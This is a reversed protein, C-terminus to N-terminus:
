KKLFFLIELSVIEYELSYSHFDSELRLIQASMSSTQLGFTITDHETQKTQSLVYELFGVSNTKGIYFGKPVIGFISELFISSLDESVNIVVNASMVQKLVNVNQDMMPIQHVYVLIFVHLIM